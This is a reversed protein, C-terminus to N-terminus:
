ANGKINTPWDAYKRELDGQARLEFMVKETAQEKARGVYEAFDLYNEVSARPGSLPLSLLNDRIYNRIYQDTLVDIRDRIEREADQKKKLIEGAEKIQQLVEASAMVETNGTITGCHSCVQYQGPELGRLVLEVVIWSHADQCAQYFDFPVLRPHKMYEMELRFRQYLAYGMRVLLMSVFAMVAGAATFTLTMEHLQEPTM